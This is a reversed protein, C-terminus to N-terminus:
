RPIAQRAFEIGRREHELARRVRDNISGAFIALVIALAAAAVFWRYQTLFEQGKTTNWAISLGIVGYFLVGVLMVAPKRRIREAARSDAASREIEEGNNTAGPDPRRESGNEDITSNDNENANM